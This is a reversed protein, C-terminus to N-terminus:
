VSVTGPAKTSPKMSSLSKSLNRIRILAPNVKQPAGGHVCILPDPKRDSRNRCGGIRGGIPPGLRATLGAPPRVARPSNVGANDRRSEWGM